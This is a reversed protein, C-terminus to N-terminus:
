CTGKNQMRYDPETYVVTYFDPFNRSKCRHYVTQRAMNANEYTRTAGIAEAYKMFKGYPTVYLKVENGKHWKEIIGKAIYTTITTSCIRLSNQIQKKSQFVIGEYIYYINKRRSSFVRKSSSPKTINIREQNTIIQVNKINFGESTNIRCMCYDSATKGRKDFNGSCNWIEYWENFSLDWDINNFKASDYQSRFADKIIKSNIDM